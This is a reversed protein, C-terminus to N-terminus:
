LADSAAGPTLGKETALLQLLQAREEQNVRGLVLYRAYREVAEEKAGSAYERDASTKLQQRYRDYAFLIRDRVGGIAKTLLAHKLELEAPLVLPDGEAVEDCRGPQSPFTEDEERQEYLRADRDFVVAGDHLSEASVTVTVVARVAHQNVVYSHSCNRAVQVTRPTRDLRRAAAEVAERATSLRGDAQTLRGRADTLRGEPAGIRDQESRLREEARQLREDEPRCRSPDSGPTPGPEPKARCRDLEARARDVESRARDAARRADDVEREYRSVDSRAHDVESEAPSVRSRAGELDSEAAGYEPNAVTSYGCVYLCSRPATSQDHRYAYQGLGGSVRVGLAPAGGEPEREVVELPLSPDLAQRLRVADVGTALDSASQDGTFPQVIATFIMQERLKRKVEGMRAPVDRYGPVVMAAVALDLLANGLQGERAFTEARAYAAAAIHERAQTDLTRARADAPLARLVEGTLVLAERAQDAALLHEAQDLVRAAAEAVIRRAETNHADLWAAEYALKLAGRADGKKLLADARVVRAAAQSRRAIGLRERAEKDEPDLQVAREYEAAAEDWRGHQALLDGRAMADAFAGGCGLAFILPLILLAQRARM